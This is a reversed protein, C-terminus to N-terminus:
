KERRELVKDLKEFHKEADKKQFSVDLKYNLDEETLFDINFNKMDRIDFVKGQFNMDKLTNLTKDSYAIPIISKNMVLGLINAHFRSGVVIRCNAIVNLAEEINGDYFYTNIRSKLENDKIKDIILKIEEEDGEAKCFSMLTIDYKMKDFFNILEIMKNEYQEKYEASLKRQCDIISIIVKKNDVIKLEDTKLSFVIDSAYRVNPLTNFLDYSYKERFCVDKANEFVKYFKNYFEETKYPGFNSGLIYYPKGGGILYKKNKNSNSEIYMSGGILVTLDSNKMLINEYSTREASILKITKNLIRRGLGSLINLRKNFTNYKKRTYIIYTNEDKYYRDLLIKVFLDDGLNYNLYAKVYIRKSKKLLKMEEM